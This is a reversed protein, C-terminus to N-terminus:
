LHLRSLNTRSCAVFACSLKPALYLHTTLKVTRGSKGRPFSVETCVSYCSPHVGCCTQNDQVLSQEWTETRIWVSVRGAWLSNVASVASVRSGWIIKIPFTYFLCFFQYKVYLYYFPIHNVKTVIVYKEGMATYITIVTSLYATVSGHVDNCTYIFCFILPAFLANVDNCPHRWTKAANYFWNSANNYM